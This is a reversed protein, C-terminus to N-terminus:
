LKVEFIDAGSATRRCTIGNADCFRTLQSYEPQCSKRWNEAKVAIKTERYNPSFTRCNYAAAVRISLQTALALQAPTFLCKNAKNREEIDLIAAVGGAHGGRDDDIIKM